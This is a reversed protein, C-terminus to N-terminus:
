LKLRAGVCFWVRRTSDPELVLSDTSTIHSSSFTLTAAQNFPNPGMWGSTKVGAIFPLQPIALKVEIFGLPLHFSPSYPKYKSM